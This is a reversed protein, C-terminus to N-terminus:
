EVPTLPEGSLRVIRMSAVAFTHAIEHLLHATEPDGRYALECHALSVAASQVDSDGRARRAEDPLKALVEAPMADCYDEMVSRVARISGAAQLMDRWKQFRHM